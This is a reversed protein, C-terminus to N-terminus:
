SPTQPEKKTKKKPTTNLDGIAKTTDKDESIVQEVISKALQNIDLRTNSRKAM